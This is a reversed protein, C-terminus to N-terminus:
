QSMPCGQWSRSGGPTLALAHFKKNEIQRHHNVNLVSLLHQGEITCGYKASLLLLVLCYGISVRLERNTGMKDKAYGLGLSGRLMHYPKMALNAFNTRWPAQSKWSAILRLNCYGVRPIRRQVAPLYYYIAGRARGEFERLILEGAEPNEMTWKLCERSIRKVREFM